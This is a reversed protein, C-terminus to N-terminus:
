PIQTEQLILSTQGTILEVPAGTGANLLSLSLRYQGPTLLPVTVAQEDLIWEGPLWTSTPRAGHRPIGTQTVLAQGTGDLLQLSILYDEAVPALVQWHLIIRAVLAEAEPVVAFDYGALNIAESVPRNLPHQPTSPEFRRPFDATLLHCITPPQSTPLNAGTTTGPNPSYLNLPFSLGTLYQHATTLLYGASAPQLDLVLDYDAEAIATPLSLCYTQNQIPGASTPHPMSYAAVPLLQGTEDKLGAVLQGTEPSQAPMQWTVQLPLLAGPQVSGPWLPTPRGVLETEDPILPEPPFDTVNLSAILGSHFQGRADHPLSFDEELSIGLWVWDAPRTTFNLTFSDQFLGGDPIYYAPFPFDLVTSGLLAGTQDFARIIPRVEQRSKQGPLKQWFLRGEIQRTDAGALEYGILRVQGPYDLYLPNSWFPSITEGPGLYLRQPAAAEERRWLESALILDATAKEPRGTQRHYLARTVLGAKGALEKVERRIVQHPQNYFGQAALIAKAQEGQRGAWGTFLVLLLALGTIIWGMAPITAVRGAVAWGYVWRSLGLLLLLLAPLVMWSIVTWPWNGTLRPLLALVQALATLQGRALEAAPYVISDSTFGVGNLYQLYLGVTWLVAVTALVAAWRGGQQLFAALGLAFFPSLTLFYRNGFSAGAWWAVNISVIYSLLLWALGLSLARWGAQRRWGWLGPIVLLLVPAYFFLGHFTSFWTELLYPETWLLQGAYPSYLPSGFVLWWVIMQPAFGLLGGLATALSNRVLAPWGRRLAVLDRLLEFGPLLIFIVNYNAVVMLWGTVVGLALYYLWEPRFDPGSAPRPLLWIYLLLAALFISAPHASLPFTIMYFLVPTGLLIALLAGGVLGPSFLRRLAGYTVIGALVPYLWSTFNLWLLHVMEETGGPKLALPGFWAAARYFPAWLLPAGINVREFTYGTPTLQYGGGVIEIDNLLHLDADFALSHAWRLYEKGDAGQAGSHLTLSMVMALGALILYFYRNKILEQKIAKLIM